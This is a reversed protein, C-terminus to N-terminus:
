SLKTDRVGSGVSREARRRRVRAGDSRIEAVPLSLRATEVAAPRLRAAAGQGVGLAGGPRLSVPSASGPQKPGGSIPSGQAQGGGGPM